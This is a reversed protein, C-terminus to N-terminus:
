DAWRTAPPDAAEYADAKVAEPIFGLRSAVRNFVHGADLMAWGMPKGLRARIEPLIDEGPEQRIITVRQGAVCLLTSAPDPFPLGAHRGGSGFHAFRAAAHFADALDVGVETLAKALSIELVSDFSFQRRVGPTGPMDIPHDKHGVIIGRRIWNQLAPNTMDAAELVQGTSFAAELISM